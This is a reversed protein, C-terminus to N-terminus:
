ANKRMAKIEEALEIAIEFEKQMDERLVIESGVRLLQTIAKKISIMENFNRPEYSRLENIQESAVRRYDTLTNLKRKTNKKKPPLGTQKSM